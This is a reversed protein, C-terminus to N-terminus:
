EGSRLRHYRRERPGERGGSRRRYQRFGMSVLCRVVRNQDLQTWKAKDIGLANELIEGVTVDDLPQPRPLRHCTRHGYLGENWEIDNDLCDRIVEDWADGQYRDAQEESACSNLEPTELWWAEGKRFRDRAEAWLQDRDRTLAGIDIQGCVM